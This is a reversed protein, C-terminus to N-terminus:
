WRDIPCYGIPWAPSIFNAAAEIAKVSMYCLGVRCAPLPPTPATIPALLTFAITTSSLLLPSAPEPDSIEPLWRPPHFAGLM